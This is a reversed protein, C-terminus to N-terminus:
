PSKKAEVSKNVGRPGEFTQCSKKHGNYEKRM